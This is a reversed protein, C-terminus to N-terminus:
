GVSVRVVAGERETLEELLLALADVKAIEDFSLTALADFEALGDIKVANSISARM